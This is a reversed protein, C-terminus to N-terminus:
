KQKKLNQLENERRDIEEQLKRERSKKEFIRLAVLRVEKEGYKKVLKGIQIVISNKARKSIEKYTRVM